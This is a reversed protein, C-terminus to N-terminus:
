ANQEFYWLNTQLSRTKHFQFINKLASYLLKFNLSPVPSNNYTTESLSITCASIDHVLESRIRDYSLAALTGKYINNQLWYIQENSSFPKLKEIAIDPHILEKPWTDLAKNFNSISNKFLKQNSLVEKLRSPHVLSFIISGSHESLIKSYNKAKNTSGHYLHSGLAEIYCCCLMLAEDQHGKDDLKKLFAIRSELDDFYAQICYAKSQENDL